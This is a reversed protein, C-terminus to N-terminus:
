SNSHLSKQLKSNQLLTNNSYTVAFVNMLFNLIIMPPNRWYIPETYGKSFSMLSVTLLILVNKISLLFEYTRYNCNVRLTISSALLLVIVCCNLLTFMKVTLYVRKNISGVWM